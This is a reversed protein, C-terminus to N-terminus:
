LAERMAQFVIQKTTRLGSLIYDREPMWASEAAKTVRTEVEELMDLIEDLRTRAGPVDLAVDLAAEAATEAAEQTDFAIHSDNPFDREQTEPNYDYVEGDENIFWARM